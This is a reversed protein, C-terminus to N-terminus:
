KQEKELPEISIDNDFQLFLYNNRDCQWLMNAATM